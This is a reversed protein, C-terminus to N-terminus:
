QLLGDNEGSKKRYKVIEAPNGIVVAWDPVDRRM